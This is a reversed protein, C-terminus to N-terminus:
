AAGQQRDLFADAEGIRFRRCRGLKVSPLGRSILNYVHARSVGWREALENATVLRGPDDTIV